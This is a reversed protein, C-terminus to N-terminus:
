LRALISVILLREALRNKNALSKEGFASLLAFKGFGKGGFKGVLLYWATGVMVYVYDQM